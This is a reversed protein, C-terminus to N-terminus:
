YSWTFISLICLNGVIFAPVFIGNAVAQYFGIDVLTNEVKFFQLVQLSNM